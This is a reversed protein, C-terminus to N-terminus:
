VTCSFSKKDTHLRMHRHLCAWYTFVKNCETCNLSKKNKTKNQCNKPPTERSNLENSASQDERTEKDNSDSQDDRTQVWYDDSDETIDSAPGALEEEREKKIQQPELKVQALSSEREQQEPRVEEECVPPLSLGLLLQSTKFDTARM